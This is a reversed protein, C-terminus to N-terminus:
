PLTWHQSKTSACSAGVLQTGKKAGAPSTLCPECGGAAGKVAPAAVARANIVVHIAKGGDNLLQADVAIVCTSPQPLRGTQLLFL